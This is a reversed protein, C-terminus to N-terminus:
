CSLLALISCQEHDLTQRCGLPMACVTVEKQCTTSAPCAGLHCVAECLHPCGPLQRYCPKGCSLLSQLEAGRHPLRRVQMGSLVSESGGDAYMSLSSELVIRYLM